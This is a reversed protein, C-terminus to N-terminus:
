KQRLTERLLQALGPGQIVRIGNEGAFRRANDTLQGIGIYVSEHAGRAEAAAHLERLSELGINAAKWRKCSVLATRGAKTIAFDAAPGAHRAVDYGNRVFAQEIADSFERSPMAAAAQLTQEIRATSPERFQRVAAIMGIVLFPFGASIGYIAYTRPLMASAILPLVLAILMSIWWPKRLLIAFLSNQAMKLKM